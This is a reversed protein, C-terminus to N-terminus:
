PQSDSVDYYKETINDVPKKLTVKFPLIRKQEGHFNLAYATYMIIAKINNKNKELIDKILPVSYFVRIDRGDDEGTSGIPARTLRYYVREESEFLWWRPDEIERAMRICHTTCVAEEAIDIFQKEDFDAHGNVDRTMADFTPKDVTHCCVIKQTCNDDGCYAQPDACPRDYPPCLRINPKFCSDRKFIYNAILVSDQPSVDSLNLFNKGEPLTNGKIRSRTTKKKSDEKGGEYAYGNLCAALVFTTLLVLRFLYLKKM